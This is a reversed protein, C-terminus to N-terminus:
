RPRVGIRALLARSPYGDPVMGFRRQVDRIDDRLDFDLHGNLDAVKYGLAALRRQLEMRQGRSPQFDNIPWATRSAPRGTLRDSLEGVALAYADSNNYQKIVNFNETALFAPGPAGSPFFLIANGAAPLPHGDTRSLARETWQRFTGRSERYDFGRPVTVEFGWPLAAQWGAHHLYNAISGVADPV